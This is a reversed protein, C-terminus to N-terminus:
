IFNYVEDARDILRGEAIKELEEKKRFGWSVLVYDTGAALAFERDVESDGVYLVREPLVGLTSLALKMMSPDPKKNLVKTRGVVIDFLGPFYDEVMPRAVDADKNTVVALRYGEFKLKEILPKMGKYSYTNAGKNKDYYKKFEEYIEKITEESSGEPMVSEVLRVMGFGLWPKVEDVTLKGDIIGELAHNLADTLDQGSDLLTGDLDFFIGDYRRDSMIINSGGGSVGCSSDGCSGCESLGTESSKGGVKRNESRTWMYIAMIGAVIGISLLIRLM